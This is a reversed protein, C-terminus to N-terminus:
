SKPEKAVPAFEEMIAKRLLAPPLSGQSLIYDHYNKRNFKEGLLLEFEARMEMLRLYGCFYSTAQGPARFTYRDLESNAMAESLVIEEKLLRLAEEKTFNGINLGPDLFARGARILRSWLTTFQGEIPLYCKMEEEMYLAWGEVNVSNMAFLARAVSVGKEVMSAFQMEHGPRGEHVALPWSAADHTFDDIKLDAQGGSGPAKLPLVFEGLEGSNGIMRPPRMFPAPLYASEAESALRIKMEREPLTVIEEKMIIDELNKIRQNYLPLIDEGVIQEKKLERLVDRYDESSYGRKQAIQIALSQMENQLEKFSVKARRELEDVPMDVGYSKLQFEYLEKPLRFNERTRPLVETELFRNYDSMQKKLLEYNSEYGKIKFKEFLQGIEDIFKPSNELDRTVEGKYPGLREGKKFETRTYNEALQTIPEFGESKGVYKKLRVLASKRREEAVQEDLLNRIGDYVTKSINLYPLLYKENLATEELSEEASKILIELDQRVANDNENELRATLEDRADETQQIRREVFGPSLDTIKEDIGEVGLHGATEPYFEGFVKLLVQANENSKEVWSRNNQGILQYSIIILGTLVVKIIILKSPFNFKSSNM